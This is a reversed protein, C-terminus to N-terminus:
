QSYNDFAKFGTVGQQFKIADRLQTFSLNTNQENKQLTIDWSGMTLYTSASACEMQAWKDFCDSVVKPTSPLEKCQGLSVANVTGALIMYKSRPETLKTAAYNESLHHDIPQTKPQRYMESATFDDLDRMTMDPTKPPVAVFSPELQTQIYPVFKELLPSGDWLAAVDVSEIPDCYESPISGSNQCQSQDAVATSNTGDDIFHAGDNIFSPGLQRKTYPPFDVKAAHQIQALEKTPWIHLMGPTLGALSPAVLEQRFRDSEAAIVIELERIYSPWHSLNTALQSLESSKRIHEMLWICKLLAVYQKLDPIRNEILIGASFGVTSNNYHLVFADAMEKLSRGLKNELRYTKWERQFGEAIKQPMELQIPKAYAKQILAQKLDSIVVGINHQHHFNLYTSSPRQALEEHILLIDENVRCLLDIELPKLVHLTKSNHLAIRARLQDAAPALLIDWDIYGPQHSVLRYRHNQEILSQCEALTEKFDGLIEDLSSLDWRLPKDVGGQRLLQVANAVVRDLIDFTEALDEVERCLKIYSRSANLTSDWLNYTEWVLKSFKSVEGTQIEEM